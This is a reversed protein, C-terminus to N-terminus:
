HNQRIELLLRKTPRNYFQNNNTKFPSLNSQTIEPAIGGVFVQSKDELEKTTEIEKSM